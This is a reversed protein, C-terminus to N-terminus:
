GVGSGLAPQFGDAFAAAFAAPTPYRDDPDPSLARRVAARVGAPRDAVISTRWGDAARKAARVLPASIRRLRFPHWGGLLWAATEALQYVDTPPGVLRSNEIQEPARHILDDDPVFLRNWEGLGILRVAGDPGLLLHRPHVCGHVAQDAHIAGLAEAAAAVVRVVTAADVPRSRLAHLLDVGDVFQRAVYWRGGFQGVHHVRPIYEHEVAEPTPRGSLFRDAARSADQVALALRRGRSDPRTDAVEYVTTGSGRAVTRLVVFAPLAAPWDPNVRAAWAPDVLPGIQRLRDLDVPTATRATLRLFEAREPQGNEDMWDAYALRPADDHPAHAIARLFADEDGM